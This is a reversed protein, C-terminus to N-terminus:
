DIEFLEQEEMEELEEVIKHWNEQSVNQPKVKVSNNKLLRLEYATISPAIEGTNLTVFLLTELDRPDSVLFIDDGRDIARQMWPLNHAKLWNKLGQWYKDPRNLINICGPIEGLDINKFDGIEKKLKGINYKGERMRGILTTTKITSPIISKDLIKITNETTLGLISKLKDTQLILHVRIVDDVNDGEKIILPSKNQAFAYYTGDEVNALLIRGDSLDYKVYYKEDFIMEYLTSGKEKLFSKPSQIFYQNNDFRVFNQSELQSSLRNFASIDLTTGSNISLKGFSTISNNAEKGLDNLLKAVSEKDVYNNFDEEGIKKAIEEDSTLITSVQLENDKVDAVKKVEYEIEGRIKKATIAYAEDSYEIGNKVGKLYSSGAFPIVLSGSYILANELDGRVGAYLVGGLDSFTDLGPVLSVVDLGGYVTQDVVSWMDFDYLHESELNSRAFLIKWSELYTGRINTGVYTNTLAIDRIFFERFEGIRVNIKDGWYDVKNERFATIENKEARIFLMNLENIWEKRLKQISIADMEYLNPSTNKILSQYRVIEKIEPSEYFEVANIFPYGRLRNTNKTELKQNVLSGNAKLFYRRIFLPKEIDTFAGLIYELLNDAQKFEFSQSRIISANSQAFGPQICNISTFSVLPTLTFFPVTVVVNKGNTGLDSQKLVQEAFLDRAQLGMKSDIPQFVVYFNIGTKQKLLYLKDEVVEARGDLHGSSVNVLHHFKGKERPKDTDTIANRLIHAANLNEIVKEVGKVNVSKKEDFYECISSKFPNENTDGSQACPITGVYEVNTDTGLKLTSKKENAYHFKTKYYRNYGCGGNYQFLYVDADSNLNSVKFQYEKEDQKGYNHFYGVFKKGDFRAHYFKNDLEFGPITGVPVKDTRISTITSTEKVSFPRWDPTFWIKGAIEGEEDDQFVYFKLDPNHLQAWDMHSLLSGNAYDMLWNTNEKESGYQNFPHRLAFVGHGIEHAITKALNGKGEEEATVDGNFIFGFQRQLPMFGGIPKSPQVDNGFVLIYYTNQDYAIQSKLSSIVAKQEQNYNTLWVSEGIDLRDNGGLLGLDLQNDGEDILIKLTIVGKKFIQRIESVIGRPINAGNVGVLVVDVLRDTLHWLTFAGATLQKSADELSPVVAYITENEFTYNGTLTLQITNNESVETPIKEGQQTKFIIDELKYKSGTQKVRATLIATKGKEVAKNVLTYDKGNGDKITLYEKKIASNALEPIEDFGYTGDATEFTVVIDKATLKQIDGNKSIGEVNGSTVAGGSDIQGGETINGGADIHYTKGEIDIIVKDDGLPESESTGNIPNTIIVMGNELKIDRDPNIEWNVRIEDLDNDDEFPESVLDTVTDLTEVADDIDLISNLNPDYITKVSGEALQKDTNVLVNTFEVGVKINNLYPITVFGHGTFRGNSGSVELIKIPFDGAVFADGASINPLPDKSTLNFDPTIGCEYVSAEEDAIFTTFQKKIGWDSSSVACKKQVQYEYVTGAKLGWFTTQNSTTKNLFWQNDNGKKRYRITYEPVDTSFDDWFVNAITSGKVEHNIGIPLDCSGAYSFSYIESYGQNKFLGIEEIGQKAKAQVRWAYNKGSLFLPDAPVYVYTTASTTTQFVPPSSLFAQQSDVQTDWIEVISLEYEVNTVNIHRPTWQFVINQPNIEEVNTKNRPSILFPPGNQFVVSTACSKQSLRNGTLVDYVEFCFQYAGEPIARGYVNPSIGVVNEFRFYPALEVNTLILPVGGELFLPAAGVVLDNSQFTIGNGEFYARLRVERNAIEFDNLVIQVRLPSSITNADAYDSFYIPPPPTTQPIVQVPFNQASVLSFFVTFLLFFFLTKQNRTISTRQRNIKFPISIRLGKTRNINFNETSAVSLGKGLLSFMLTLIDLIKNM